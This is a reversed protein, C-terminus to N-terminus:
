WAFKLKEVVKVIGSMINTSVKVQRSSCNIAVDRDNMFLDFLKDEKDKSMSVEINTLKRDANRTLTLTFVENVNVVTMKVARTGVDVFSVKNDTMKLVVILDSMANSFNSRMEAPISFSNRTGNIRVMKYQM